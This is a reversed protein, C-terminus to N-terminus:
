ERVKSRPLSTWISSRDQHGFALAHLLAPKLVPTQFGNFSSQNWCRSVSILSPLRCGLFASRQLDDRWKVIFVDRSAFTM